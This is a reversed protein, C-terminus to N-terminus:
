KIKHLAFGFLCIEVVILSYYIESYGYYSAFAGMMAIVVIMAIFSVFQNNTM